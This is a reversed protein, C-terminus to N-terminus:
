RYKEAYGKQQALATAGKLTASVHRQMQRCRQAM